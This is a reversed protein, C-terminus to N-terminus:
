FLAAGPPPKATSSTPSSGVVEAMGHCREGLQAIAGLEYTEAYTVGLEQNNRARDLRLHIGTRGDVLSIPLLYCREVDPCYAAVADVEAACYTTTVYRGNARRSTRLRVNVVGRERNAWKCQVRQLRGGVDLIMDTRGGEAVPRYVPIGLKTAELAIAIEAVAGKQSPHMVRVSTRVDSLFGVGSLGGHAGAGRGM